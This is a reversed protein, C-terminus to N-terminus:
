KKGTKALSRIYIVLEWRQEATFTNKFSPMPTRGETLKWFLSGDTENQVAASTHDAPRPHLGAAAPGDGRGKVGHCPSCNATYLTKAAALISSNAMLPNKLNNATGPATWKATQAASRSFMVNLTLSVLLFLSIVSLIHAYPHKKKM